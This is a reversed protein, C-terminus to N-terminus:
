VLKSYVRLDMVLVDNRHFVFLEGRKGWLNGVTLLMIFEATEVIIHHEEIELSIM